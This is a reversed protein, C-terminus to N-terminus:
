QIITQKPRRIFVNEFTSIRQVAYWGRWDHKTSKARAESEFEGWGEGEVGGACALKHSFMGTPTKVNEINPYKKLYEIVNDKRTALEDCRYTRNLRSFFRIDIAEYIPQLRLGIPEPMDPGGSSFEVKNESFTTNDTRSKKFKDFSASVSASFGMYGGSVSVSAGM